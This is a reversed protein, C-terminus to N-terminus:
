EELVKPMEARHFGDFAKPVNSHKPLPYHRRANPVAADVRLTTGSVFSAAPSLLFVIAASVEAENGLRQMPVHNRMDRILPKMWDPYTDMGSSAIWGPAVANVRVGDAAWPAALSKTLQVIGAKSAAYAPAHPAGFFSLMSAINVIAGGTSAFRPKAALCVRMTGELNSEIVEHFAAMAYEDRRRITGACNVLLDLRDFRALLAQVAAEDTVDAPVVSVGAMETTHRACVTTRCGVEALARAVAGGIGRTGGTVLAVKGALSSLM